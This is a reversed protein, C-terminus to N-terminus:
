ALTEVASVELLGVVVGAGVVELVVVVVVSADVDLLV